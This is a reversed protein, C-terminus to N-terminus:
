MFYNEIAHGLAMSRETKGLGSECWELDENIFLNLREGNVYSIWYHTRGGIEELTVTIPLLQFEKYFMQISFNKNEM